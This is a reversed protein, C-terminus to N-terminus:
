LIKAVRTPQINKIKDHRLINNVRITIKYAGTCFVVGYYLKTRM